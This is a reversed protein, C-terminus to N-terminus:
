SEYGTLMRAKFSEEDQLFKLMQNESDVGSPDVVSKFLENYATRPDAYCYNRQYAGPASYGPVIGTRFKSYDGTLSLEVHGFPSPFLKALEFDVTARKIGSISNRNSKFAGMISSYSYHGNESMMCSLGQLITMHKKHGDLARLWEPLEHRTLDAELATKKSELAKEKESFTLPVLENPRQGNAFRIFIFRQPTGDGPAAFAQGPLALVSAGAALATAKLFQRRSATM